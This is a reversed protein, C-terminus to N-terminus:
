GPPRSPNVFSPPAKRNGATPTVNKNVFDQVSQLAEGIRTNTRFIAPLNKVGFGPAAM